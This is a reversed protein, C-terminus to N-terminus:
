VFFPKWVLLEVWALPFMLVLWFFFHFLGVIVMAIWSIALSPLDVTLGPLGGHWHCIMVSFWMCIGHMGFSTLFVYMCSPVQLFIQHLQQDRHGRASEQEEKAKKSWFGLIGCGGLTSWSFELYGLTHSLSLSIILSSWFQVSL